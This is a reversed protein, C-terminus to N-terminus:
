TFDERMPTFSDVLRGAQVAVVGHLVMTPVFFTDGAVLRRTEGGITVDFVGSEVLTGQLHPHNHEAGIAGAEFAVHVIMIGDAHSLIKRRVGDGVVQWPIDASAVFPAGKINAAQAMRM